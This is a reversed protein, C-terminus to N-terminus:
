QRPRSLMVAGILVRAPYILQLTSSDLIAVLRTM